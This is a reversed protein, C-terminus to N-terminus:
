GGQNKGAIGATGSFNDLSGSAFAKVNKQNAGPNSL